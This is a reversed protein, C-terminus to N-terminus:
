DAGMGEEFSGAAYPLCLKRNIYEAANSSAVDLEYVASEAEGVLPAQTTGHAKNYRDAYGVRAMLQVFGPLDIKGEGLQCFQMGRDKWDSLFSRLPHGPRVVHDKVHVGTIYPGVKTFRTLWDEGEWCHSPDANVGLVVDDDCIKRAHLFEDATAAATGPHIEHALSIGLARAHDRILQTQKVFRDSGEKILDYGPGSFFGWPYGSAVELGYLTGWFMPVVKIGLEAALDLVARMSDDAWTEIEVVSATHLSSPIFPRICKTGTWASGSVWTLCHASIGVLKVKKGAFAARVEDATMLKGDKKVFHYNSPQVGEFGAAECFAILEELSKGGHQAGELASMYLIKSEHQKLHPPLIM